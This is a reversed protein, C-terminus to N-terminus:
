HCIKFIGRFLLFHLSKLIDGEGGGAFQLVDYIPKLLMRCCSSPRPSVPHYSVARCASYQLLYTLFIIESVSKLLAPLSRGAMPSRDTRHTGVVPVVTALSRAEAFAHLGQAVGGGEGERPFFHM